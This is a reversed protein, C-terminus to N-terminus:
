FFLKYIQPSLILRGYSVTVLTIIVSPTMTILFVSVILLTTRISKKLVQHKERSINPYIAVGLTSRIAIVFIIIYCIFVLLLISTVSCYLIMIIIFNKCHNTIDLWCGSLYPVYSYQGLGLHQLGMLPVASAIAIILGNFIVAYITRQKTVHIGYHLPLSVALCRDVAIISITGYSIGISTTILYAHIMCGIQSRPYTKSNLHFVAPLATILTVTINSIALSSILIGSPNHLSIKRYIVLISLFNGILALIALVFSFIEIAIGSTSSVTENFQALTTNRNSCGPFM